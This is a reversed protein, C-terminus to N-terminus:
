QDITAVTGATEQSSGRGIEVMDIPSLTFTGARQWTNSNIDNDYQYECVIESGPNADEVKALNTTTLFLRSYYKPDTTQMDFTQSIFVFEHMYAMGTDNLPRTNNLPFEQYLLDGGCEYWLRSRTNECTQWRVSRIRYGLSYSRVQESWTKTDVAYKMVSSVGSAGADLAGFLWGYRSEFDSVYGSRLYPMGSNANLGTSIATTGSLMLVEHSFNVYFNGDAATIIAAGNRLSPAFEFGIKINTPKDADVVYMTDEKTVYLKGLHEWMNTILHTNDGIAIGTKFTLNTGWGLPVGGPSITARSIKVLQGALTNNARWFVPGDTVNYGSIAYQAKNAAADASFGHEQTQSYDMRMRIITTADGLSFYCIGNTVVPKDTVAGFGTGTIQVWWDTSYIVYESTTDPTIAWTSVTVQSTTNSLIKRIQGAGTGHLIRIYANTWRNVTWVPWQGWKTDTLSTSTAATAKGRAGNIWLQSTSADDNMTVAYFGFDFEFPIFMRAVDADTIRYCPSFTTATWSSNNTSSLGTTGADCGVEWCSDATDNASGYIKLHYVTGGTAAYPTGPPFDLLLSITDTVDSYIHTMTSGVSGPNGASDTDIEVTLTGPTADAGTVVHKRIWLWVHTMSYSSSGTFSVDLYQTPGGAAGSPYLPKFTM